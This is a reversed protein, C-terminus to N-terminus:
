ILIKAEEILYHFTKLLEKAMQATPFSFSRAYYWQPYIRIRDDLYELVYHQTQHNKWDPEWEGIWDRRLKLLKSLAALSKAENETLQTATYHLVENSYKEKFEEWSKVRSDKEKLLGLQKAQEIDLLYEKGNLTLLEQKTEM